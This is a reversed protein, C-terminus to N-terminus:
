CYCCRAATHSVVNVVHAAGLSESSLGWLGEHEAGSRKGAAAAM